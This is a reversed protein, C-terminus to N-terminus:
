LSLIRSHVLLNNEQLILGGEDSHLSLLIVFSELKRCVQILAFYCRQGVIESQFVLTILNGVHAVFISFIYLDYITVFWCLSTASM